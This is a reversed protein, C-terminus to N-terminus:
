DDNEDSENSEATNSDQFIEENFLGNLDYKLERLKKSLKTVTSILESRTMNQLIKKGNDTKAENQKHKKTRLHGHKGALSYNYNNCFPCRWEKNVM